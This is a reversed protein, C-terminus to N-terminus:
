PRGHTPARPPEKTLCAPLHRSPRAPHSPEPNGPKWPHPTLSPHHTITPASPTPQPQARSPSHSSPDVGSCLWGPRAQVQRRARCVGARSRLYPPTVTTVTAICIRQVSVGAGSPTAAHRPRRRHLHPERPATAQCQSALVAACWGDGGGVAGAHPLWSPVMAQHSPGVGAQNQFAM